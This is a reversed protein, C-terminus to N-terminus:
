VASITIDKSFWFDYIDTYQAESTNFAIGWVYDLKAMTPFDFLKNRNFNRTPYCRDSKLFFGLSRKYHNRLANTVLSHISNYLTSNDQYKGENFNYARYYVGRNELHKIVEDQDKAGISEIYKRVLELEDPTIGIAVEFSNTPFSRGLAWSLSWTNSLAYGLLELVSTKGGANPGALVILDSHRSPQKFPGLHVDEIHRFSKIHIENIYM